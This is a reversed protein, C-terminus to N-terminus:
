VEAAMTKMWESYGQEGPHLPPVDWALTGPHGNMYDREGQAWGHTIVHVNGGTIEGDTVDIFSTGNWKKLNALSPSTPVPCSYQAVNAPIAHTIGPTITGQRATFLYRGPVGVNSNAASSNPGGDLLAGNIGSGALEYHTGAVGTGNTYGVRASYGGLGSTGGSAGGTEWKIQKYNIEIDFNGTGTDSRDVLLVQFDNLKDTGQPYYGVGGYPVGASNLGGYDVGFASHGGVTGAGYRVIASGIARTDVDAFFPAIIGTNMTNLNSPTFQNLPAAFTINGNNNVYCQSINVGAFNGTFGLSVLGTSGDDTAALTSGDFGWREPNAM